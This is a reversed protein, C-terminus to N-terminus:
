VLRLFIKVCFLLINFVFFLYAFTYIVGRLPSFVSCLDIDIPISGVDGFQFSTTYRCTTLSSKTFPSSFGHEVLGKFTSVQDSVQGISDVLNGWTDNYTDWSVGSTDSPMGLSNAEVPHSGNIGSDISSLKSASGDISELLKKMKYLVDSYDKGGGDKTGNGDNPSTGNGDQTGNNDSPISTNNDSPSTSNNDSPTSNNNDTQSTKNYYVYKSSGDACKIPTQTLTDNGQTVPFQPTVSSPVYTSDTAGCACNAMSILDSALFSSCDTCQGDLNTFTGKTPDCELLDVCQGNELSQNTGCPSSSLKIYKVTALTNGHGCLDPRTVSYTDLAYIYSVFFYEVSGSPFSLDNIIQGVTYPNTDYTYTCHKSLTPSGGNSLEYYNGNVLRYQPLSAFSFSVMMMLVLLIKKM